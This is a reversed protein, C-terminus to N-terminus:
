MILFINPEKITERYTEMCNWFLHGTELQLGLVKQFIKELERSKLLEMMPFFFLPISQPPSLNMVFIYDETLFQLQFLSESSDQEPM